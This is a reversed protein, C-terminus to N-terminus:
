FNPSFAVYIQKVTKIL